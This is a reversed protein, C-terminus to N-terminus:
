PRQRQEATRSSAFRTRIKMVAYLVVNHTIFLNKAFRTRIKM